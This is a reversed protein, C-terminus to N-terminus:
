RNRLHSRSFADADCLRGRANRLGARTKLMSAAGIGSTAPIMSGAMSAIIAKGSNDSFKVDYIQSIRRLMQLQLGGFPM